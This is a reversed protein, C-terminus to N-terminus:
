RDTQEEHREEREKDESKQSPVAESKQTKERAEQDDDAPAKVAMAQPEDLADDEKDSGVAERDETDPEEEASEVHHHTPQPAHCNPCLIEDNFYVEGCHDCRVIKGAIEVGCSPCNTAKESIQHGCEPCKIIAM